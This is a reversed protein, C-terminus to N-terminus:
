TQPTRWKIRKPPKPAAPPAAAEDRELRRGEEVAENIRRDIDRRRRARDRRGWVILLAAAVLVALQPLPAAATADKGSAAAPPAGEVVPQADVDVAATLWFLPWVGEVAVSAARSEGPALEGPFEAEVRKAGLGLPGAVRIVPAASLRTNGTNAVTYEVTASGPQFPNWRTSYGADVTLDLSSLYEGTVRTMVRFGVRSDVSVGGEDGAQRVSAALGAPHDGPTADAPVTVTFPIVAQEGAGVTVSDQVEIWLGADTSEDGAALMNFRGRETFYGDAATIAFTVERQSLNVVEAHETASEGPDLELEVWSRKDGGRADAPRFSWTVSDGGAAPGAALAPWPGLLALGSLAL